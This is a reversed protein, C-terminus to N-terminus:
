AKVLEGERGLMDVMYSTGQEDTVAVARFGLMKAARATYQQIDWGAEGMDEVEVNSDIDYISKSEEILAEADGENIDFRNAVEAVLDALKEADEHFFLQGARIVEGEDLEITYTFYDGATMVYTDSAFFLFEGFRGSTDIRTIETPSTHTLQM